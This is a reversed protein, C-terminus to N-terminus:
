PRVYLDRGDELAPKLVYGVLHGRRAIEERTTVVFDKAVPLDAVARRMDVAAAAQDGVEDLIVLLDV